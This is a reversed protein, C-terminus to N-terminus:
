NLAAQCQPCRGFLEMRHASLAFGTAQAIQELQGPALCLDIAVVRHCVECTLHHHHTGPAVAHYQETGDAFSIRDLFGLSTLVEVTRFATARSVCPAKAHAAQWLDEATFHVEANGWDAVQEAIMQRPQTKRLGAQEMALIIQQAKIMMRASAKQILEKLADLKNLSYRM